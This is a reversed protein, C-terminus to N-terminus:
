APQQLRALLQEAQAYDIRVTSASPDERLSWIKPGKGRRDYGEIVRGAADFCLELAFPNTGRKYLLCDLGPNGVGKRYADLSPQDLPGIAALVRQIGAIELRAHRRAEWRGIPILALLVVVLALGALLSRNSPRKM